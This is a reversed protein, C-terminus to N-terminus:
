NGRLTNLTHNAVEERAVAALYAKHLKDREEAAAVAAKEADALRKAEAQRTEERQQQERWRKADDEMAALERYRSMIVDLHENVKSLYCLKLGKCSKIQGRLCECVQSPSVNLQEAADKGSAFVRGDNLCIVPKCTKATRTGEATIEATENIIIKM